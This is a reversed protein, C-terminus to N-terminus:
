ISNYVKYHVQWLTNQICCSMPLNFQNYKQIQLHFKRAQRYKQLMDMLKLWERRTTALFRCELASFKETLNSPCCLAQVQVNAIFPM